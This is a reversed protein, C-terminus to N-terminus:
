QVELLEVEFILTANAPIVPPSGAAGYGLDPPITLKRKGGVKMGPIGEDWGAIVRGQGITFTYPQGRDLSSDFKTGDQLTGTYHVSVTDGTDAQEGTGVVLDEVQLGSPTTTAEPRNLSSYVVYTVAALLLIAIALIALRQNRRRAARQARRDARARSKQM